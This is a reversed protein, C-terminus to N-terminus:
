RHTDRNSLSRRGALWHDFSWKILGIVIVCGAVANTMAAWPLGIDDIRYPYTFQEFLLVIADFLIPVSGIFLIIATSTKM